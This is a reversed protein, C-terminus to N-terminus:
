AASIGLLATLSALVRDQALGCIAGILLASRWSVSLKLGKGLSTHEYVNFFLVALIPAVIVGGSKAMEFMSSLPYADGALSLKLVVGLLSAIIAVISLSFPYPSIQVNTATSNSQPDTTEPDLYSATFGVQYKRPSLLRRTFKLVYTATFLSGPEIATLSSRDNEDMLAEIRELQETKAQFLAITDHYETSKELWRVFASQADPASAITFAYSDFERKMQAQFDRNRFILRFYMAFIGPFSFIKKFAERQQAIWDQRFQDSTVWLFQRLLRNLDEIVEAKRASAEALSTSSIELLSAGVPIRPEVSLLQITKSGSNEITLKYAIQDSRLDSLQEELTFKPSSM